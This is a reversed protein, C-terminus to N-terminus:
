HISADPDFKKVIKIYVIYLLVTTITFELFSGMFKGIEFDMGATPSFILLRWDGGTASVTYNIIPMIIAESITTVFKQMSNAMILALAMAFLNKGFAFKKYEKFEQQIKESNVFNKEEM